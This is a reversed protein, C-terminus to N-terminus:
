VRSRSKGFINGIGGSLNEDPSAGRPQRHIRPRCKSRFSQMWQSSAKKLERMFEALCHTSKLSVLLHVHDPTGGIGRPEGGLRRAIGGLYEHLRPLTSFPISPDRNKTSFILHYHLDLYTSM